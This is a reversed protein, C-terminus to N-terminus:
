KHLILLSLSSGDSDHYRSDHAPGGKRHRRAADASEPRAAAGGTGQERCVHELDSTLVDKTSLGNIAVVSRIGSLRKAFEDSSLQCSSLPYFALPDAFQQPTSTVRRARLPSQLAFVEGIQPEKQQQEEEEAGAVCVEQGHLLANVQAADGACAARARPRVNRQTTVPTSHLSSASSSSSSSGPTGVAAHVKVTYPTSSAATRAAV